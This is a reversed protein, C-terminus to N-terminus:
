LGPGEQARANDKSDIISEDSASINLCPIVMPISPGHARAYLSFSGITCIGSIGNSTLPTSARVFTLATNNGSYVLIRELAAISMPEVKLAHVDRAVVEYLENSCLRHRRKVITGIRLKLVRV